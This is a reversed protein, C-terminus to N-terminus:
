TWQPSRTSPSPVAGPEPGYLMSLLVRHGYGNLRDHTVVCQRGGDIDDHDTGAHGAAGGGIIEGLFAVRHRQEVLAHNAALLGAPVPTPAALLMAIQAFQREGHLAELDPAVEAVLQAGLRAKAASAEEVHRGAGGIEGLPLLPREPRALVLHVAVDQRGGFGLRHSRAAGAVPDAANM